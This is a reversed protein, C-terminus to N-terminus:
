RNGSVTSAQWFSSFYIVVVPVAIVPPSKCYRFACPIGQAKKKHKMPIAITRWLLITM